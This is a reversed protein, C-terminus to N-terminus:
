EDKFEKAGIDDLLQNRYRSSVRSNSRLVSNTTSWLIKQPLYGRLTYENWEYLKNFIARKDLGQQAFWSALVFSARKKGDKSGINSSLLFKISRPEGNFTQTPKKIYKELNKNVDYKIMVEQPIKNDGNNVFRILKKKSGKRSFANEITIMVPSDVKARDEHFTLYGYALHRLLFRKLETRQFRPYKVLEDFFLHFHYGNGGSHWLSYTLKLEKLKDEIAMLTVKFAKEEEKPSINPIHYDIDMVIEAPLPERHNPKGWASDYKIFDEDDMGKFNIWKRPEKRFTQIRFPLNYKKYYYELFNRDKM